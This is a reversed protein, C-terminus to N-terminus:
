RLLSAVGFITLLAVVWKLMSILEDIKFGIYNTLGRELQALNTSDLPMVEEVEPEDPGSNHTGSLPFGFVVEEIVLAEDQEIDWIAESGDPAWGFRIPGRVSIRIGEPHRGHRACEWLYQFQYDSLHVWGACLEDAPVEDDALNAYHNLMGMGGLSKVRENELPGQYVDLNWDVRKLSRGDSTCIDNEFAIKLEYSLSTSSDGARAGVRLACKFSVFDLLVSLPRKAAEEGNNEM